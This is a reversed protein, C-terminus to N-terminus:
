PEDMQDGALSALAELCKGHQGNAVRSLYKSLVEEAQRVQSGRIHSLGRDREVRSIRWSSGRASSAM